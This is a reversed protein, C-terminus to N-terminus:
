HHCLLFQDATITVTAEYDLFNLAEIPAVRYDGFPCIMKVGKDRSTMVVLDDTIEISSINTQKIYDSYDFLKDHHVQYMTQIFEPKTIQDILFDNRTDSIKM